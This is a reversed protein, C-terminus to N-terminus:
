SEVCGYLAITFKRLASDKWRYITKIDVFCEEALDGAAGREAIIYFRDLIKREEPSLVGLSLEVTNVWLKARELTRQLEDKQVLCNLIKDDYGSAGSKVPTSDPRASRISTMASEIEAIQLPISELAQKKAPYDKLKEIAIIKWDM